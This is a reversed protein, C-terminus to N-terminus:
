LQNDAAFERSAVSCTFGSLTIERLEELVGAFLTETESVEGGETIYVEKILVGAGLFPWTADAEILLSHTGWPENRFKLEVQANLGVAEARRLEAGTGTLAEMYDEYRTGDAVINRDSLRLTPGGNLLTIEVLFVPEARDLSRAESITPM